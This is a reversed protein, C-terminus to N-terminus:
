GTNRIWVNKYLDPDQKEMQYPDADSQKIRIRIRITEFLYHELVTSNICGLKIKRTLLDLLVWGFPM